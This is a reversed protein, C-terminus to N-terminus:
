KFPDSKYISMTLWNMFSTVKLSLIDNVIRHLHPIGTKRYKDSVCEWIEKGTVHEYGLMHFEEAKSNCINEIVGSLEEDSLPEETQEQEALMPEEAEEEAKLVSADREEEGM